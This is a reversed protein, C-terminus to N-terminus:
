FAINIKQIQFSNFCGDNEYLFYGAWQNEEIVFLM